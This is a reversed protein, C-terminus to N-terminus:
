AVGAIVGGLHGALTIVLLTLLALVWYAASLGPIGKRVRRTRIVCLLALLIVTCVGLGLHYYLWRNESFTATM